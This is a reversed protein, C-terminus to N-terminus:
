SRTSGSIQFSPMSEMQPFDQGIHIPPNNGVSSLRRDVKMNSWPPNPWNEPHISRSSPLRDVEMNPPSFFSEVLIFLLIAVEAMPVHWAPSNRSSEVPLRIVSPM